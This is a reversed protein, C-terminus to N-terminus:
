YRIVKRTVREGAANQLSLLYCGQPLHGISLTENLTLATVVKTLVVQGLMDSLQLTTATPAALTAQIHLVDNTPNPAFLSRLQGRLCLILVWLLKSRVILLRVFVINADYYHAQYLGSQTITYTNTTAHQYRRAMLIGNICRVRRSFLRHM